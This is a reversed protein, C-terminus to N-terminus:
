NGSSFTLLVKDSTTSYIFAYTDGSDKNHAIFGIPNKWTTFDFRALSGEFNKFDKITTPNLDAKDSDKLLEPSSKAKELWQSMLAGRASEPVEMSIWIESSVFGRQLYSLKQAGKPVDIEWNQISTLVDEDSLFVPGFLGHKFGEIFRGFLFSAGCFIAILIIWFLITRPKNM